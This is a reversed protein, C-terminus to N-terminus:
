NQNSGNSKMLAYVLPWGCHVRMQIPGAFRSPALRLLFTATDRSQWSDDALTIEHVMFLTADKEVRLLNLSHAERASSKPAARKGVVRRDQLRDAM